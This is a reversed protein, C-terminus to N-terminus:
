YFQANGVVEVRSFTEARGADLFVVVLCAEVFVSGDGIARECRGVVVGDSNYIINSFDTGRFLFLGDM